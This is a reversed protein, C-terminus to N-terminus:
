PTGDIPGPLSLDIDPTPAPSEPSSTSGGGISAQRQDKGAGSGPQKLDLNTVSGGGRDAKHTVGVIRYSGDIGPRAGRLIFTGEAQAEPALDIQVSGEGGEREDDAKRGEAMARAQEEDAALKSVADVVESDEISTEVDVQKFSASARDFYRARTAKAKQRSIVPAISWNIVNRGVEGLVTPMAAGSAASGTGRKALVAKDGRIKFTAGLERALKEGLQLFSDHDASWYDRFISAFAPDIAVTSIGAKSAAKDMFQQLTADDLHFAQKETAKGKADFGKANISLIRGGGRSGSSRVADVVGEFVLAGQLHVQVKAGDRPLKVQGGADDFELQAADSATGDRDSVSVSMLYPRMATTADQGDVTVRWDVKWM